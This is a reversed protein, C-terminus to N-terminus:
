QTVIINSFEATSQNWTRLGASGSLYTPDSFDMVPAGDVTIIQHDSEVSISIAHSANVDFGAPFSVRQIPNSEKGNTVVRVVFANYGTDFQFCYGSIGPTFGSVQDARYYVGYGSNGSINGSLFRGTLSLTYDTWSPDGFALRREGTSSPSVLHGDSILWNAGYLTKFQGLGSLDAAFLVNGAGRLVPYVVDSQGSYYSTLSIDSYLNHSSAMKELKAKVGDSLDALNASFGIFKDSSDLALSYEAHAVSAEKLNIYDRLDIIDSPWDGISAKCILAASKLSRLEAVIRAAEARDAGSVMSILIMGSLVSIIIIAILVEIMTFGCNESKERM